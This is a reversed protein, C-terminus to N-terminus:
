LHHPHERVGRWRRHPRLADGARSTTPRAATSRRACLTRSRMRWPWCSPRAPWARGACRPRRSASSARPGCSTPSLGCWRRRWARGVRARLSAAASPPISLRGDKDYALFGALAAAAHECTVVAGHNRPVLQEDFARTMEDIHPDTYYKPARPAYSGREGSSSRSHGGAGASATAASAPAPSGSRSRASARTTPGPRGRKSAPTGAPDFRVSPPPKLLTLVPPGSM